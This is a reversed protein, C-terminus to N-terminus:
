RGQPGPGNGQGHHPGPGKGRPPGGRGKGPGQPTNTAPICGCGDTKGNPGCSNSDKLISDLETPTLAAPTYTGGRNVLNRHFARLHNNSAMELNALSDKHLPFEKQALRLDAIDFEELRVGVRCADVPSQKGETLWKEYTADLGTSAFRRGEPPVPMPVKAQKLIDAMVERHSAESGPINQFPMIGPHAKGLEVYLDHALVEEEYLRVLKDNTDAHLLSPLALAIILLPKM